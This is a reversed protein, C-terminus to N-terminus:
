KPKIWTRQIMEDGWAVSITQTATETIIQIGRGNKSPYSIATTNDFKKEERFETDSKVGDADIDTYKGTKEFVRKEEEYLLSIKEMGSIQIEKERSDLAEGGGIIVATTILTTAAITKLTDGM